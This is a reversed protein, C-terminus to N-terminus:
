RSNREPLQMYDPMPLNNPLAKPFKMRGDPYFLKGADWPWRRDYAGMETNFGEIATIWSPSLMSVM